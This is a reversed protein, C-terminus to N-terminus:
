LIEHVSNEVLYKQFEYDHLAKGDRRKSATPEVTMFFHYRGEPHQQAIKELETNKILWVRSNELDVFAFLDAPSDDPVWWDLALKGKGGGPKAKLNSKVQITIADNIKRSFVVLDIGSDTTLSASEIGYLLLKQQVLLEGAKGIQAKSLKM